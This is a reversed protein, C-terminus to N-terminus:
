PGSTMVDDPGWTIFKDWSAEQSERLLMDFGGEPTAALAGRVKFDADTAWGVINGPNRAVLELEGSTLDLHYVDHVQVNEKNMAILLENPYHKNRDVIMVRVNEFPTLDKVEDTELNVGYLRFNENGGVDQLYMIHKSDAAWFYDRIGRNDDKTVAKDDETGITRVWVNLVDNVPALYALMA